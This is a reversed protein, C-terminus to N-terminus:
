FCLTHRLTVDGSSLLDQLPVRIGTGCTYCGERLLHVRYNQDNKVASCERQQYDNIRYQVGNYITYGEIDCHCDETEKGCSIALGALLLLGLVKKM